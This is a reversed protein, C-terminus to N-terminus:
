RVADLRIPAVPSSGPIGAATTGSQMAGGGGGGSFGGYSGAMSSSTGPMSAGPTGPLARGRHRALAIKADDADLVGASEAGKAAAQADFVARNRRGVLDGLHQDACGATM